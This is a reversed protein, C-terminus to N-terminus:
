FFLNLLLIIFGKKKTEKLGWDASRVKSLPLYIDLYTFKICVEVTIFDLIIIILLCLAYIQDHCTKRIEVEKM